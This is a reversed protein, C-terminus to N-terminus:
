TEISEGDKVSRAAFLTFPREWAELVGAERFWKRTDDLRELDHGNGNNRKMDM